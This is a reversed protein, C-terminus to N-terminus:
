PITLHNMIKLVSLELKEWCKTITISSVSDWTKAV